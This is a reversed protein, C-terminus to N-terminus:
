ALRAWQPREPADPVHGSRAADGRIKPASGLGAVAGAPVAHALCASYGHCHGCDIDAAASSSGDATGVDAGAEDAAGPVAHGHWVHPHHGFHGAGADAEHACYNAVAAWSLQLPMFVLLLIALWRRM